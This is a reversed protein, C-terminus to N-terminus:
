ESQCCVCSNFDREVSDLCSGFSRYQQAHSTAIPLQRSEFAKEPGFRPSNLENQLTAVDFDNWNLIDCPSDIKGGRDSRFPENGKTAIICASTSTFVSALEMCNVPQQSRLRTVHRHTDTHTYARTSPRELCAIPMTILIYKYELIFKLHPKQTKSFPLCQM